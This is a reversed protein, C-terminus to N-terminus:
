RVPYQGVREWADRSANRALAWDLNSRGRAGAWDRELELEVDDFGRGRYHGYAAVGYGFAPGYDDFSSGAAVYPRTAYNERWYADELSPDITEAVSKGALGGVIAGLAAGVITGVPGAVTGTAAGAAAGGLAAGLGTGVPHAGPEGTIPDRNTDTARLTDPTSMTREKPPQDICRSYAGPRHDAVGRIGARRAVFPKTPTPFWRCPRM